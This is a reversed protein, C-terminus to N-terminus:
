GALPKLYDVKRRAESAYVSDPFEDALRRYADRAEGTRRAQELTTSLVMLVHDRPLTFSTDDVMQRYLKLAEEVKGRRLELEALELRALAPTLEKGDRVAAVEGLAKQAEDYQGLELRSLGEYYRARRGAPQSGYKRHVEALEQAAQRYREAETGFVKGRAGPEAGPQGAVPAHFTRLAATLEEEAARARSSTWTSLGLWGLAVALVIGATAKAEREHARLWVITHDLWSVFEDQKIQRKLERKM